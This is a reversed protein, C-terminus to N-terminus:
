AALTVHRGNLQQVYARVQYVLRELSFNDMCRQGSLMGSFFFRTNPMADFELAAPEGVEHGPGLMQKALAAAAANAVVVVKPQIDILTKTFLELQARGFDNLKRIPRTKALVMELAAKQSTERMLFLDLHEWKGACGVASAFKEVPGFYSVYAKKAFAEFEIVQRMRSHSNKDWGFLSDATWPGGALRTKMENTLESDVWETNFSPNMGVILLEPNENLEPLLIPMRSQKAGFTDWIDMARQNYKQALSM